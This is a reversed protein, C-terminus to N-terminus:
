YIIIPQPKNSKKFNLPTRNSSSEVLSNQEWQKTFVRHTPLFIKSPNNNMPSVINSEFRNIINAVRSSPASKFKESARLYQPLRPPSPQEVLTILSQSPRLTLTFINSNPSTSSSLSSLQLFFSNLQNNNNSNTALDNVSTWRQTFTSSSM